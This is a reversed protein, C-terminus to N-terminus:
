TDLTGVRTQPINAMMNGILIWFKGIKLFTESLNFGSEPISVNQQQDAFQVARTRNQPGGASTPPGRRM